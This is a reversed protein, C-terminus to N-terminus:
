RRDVIGSTKNSNHKRLENKLKSVLYFHMFALIISTTMGLAILSIPILNHEEVSLFNIANDLRTITDSIFVSLATYKMYKCHYKGESFCYVVTCLEFLLTYSNTLVDIGLTHAVIFSILMYISVFVIVLRVFVKGM